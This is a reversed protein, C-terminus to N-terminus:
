FLIFYKQKIYNNPERDNRIVFVGNQKIAIQPKNNKM